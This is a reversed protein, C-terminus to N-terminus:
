GVVGGTLGGKDRKEGQPYGEGRRGGDKQPGQQDVADGRAREHDTIM